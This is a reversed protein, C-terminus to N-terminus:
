SPHSPRPDVPGLNRNLPSTFPAYDKEYRTRAGGPADGVLHVDWRSETHEKPLGLEAIATRHPDHQAPGGVRQALSYPAGM